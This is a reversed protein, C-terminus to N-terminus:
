MRVNVVMEAQKQVEESKLIELAEEETMGEPFVVSFGADKFKRRM